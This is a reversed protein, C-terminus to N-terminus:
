KLGSRRDPVSPFATGGQSSLRIRYLGSRACLYLTRGDADGFAFNAPLEPGALTGLHKGDPSIVWVGGPGSVFVNGANDVKLGDLAIEGRVSTMDYFVAPKSLAGTAAVDYRLVVKRNEEWNDVYLHKEDPTFALGNPAALDRGALALEGDKWMYVGSFSLEKAPDDFVNPLGFPPDTFYLTGDSRYVLDNPSNLRKGDFRDALVTLTGNKEIRTVRRNGHEDITLRGQPDIALGNSGPQHYRAIDAGTYGSHTRFVDVRGDTTWKYITNNNPDSFLLYGDAGDTGNVWVPGETFGFGDALKEIKTGPAVIRDLAPDLREIRTQVDVGIRAHEPTYFDLTASRIWVFNV